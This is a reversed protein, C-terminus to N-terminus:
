HLALDLIGAVLSQFGANYDCAVENQIYDSRKDIFEGNQDPGGVLAGYLIQPSPGVRYQNSDNCVAPLDDCSSSRHHPQTPFSDGFGIVYSRNIENEGFMYHLQSRAYDRYSTVLAPSDAIGTQAAMLAIFGSNASYRLTGWVDRWALGKPTRPVDGGPMYSQLFSAVLDRYITKGTAEFLLVQCGVTKDDWSFAWPKKNQSQPFIAEAQNLYEPKGRSKICCPPPIASNTTMDVQSNYFNRADPIADSYKGRYTNAFDYLSEAASLLENAYTANGERKFVFSGIALAAATEAAVDSGPSSRTVKYAPRQMTMEEPRGWFSHDVGGIGVQAYYEQSSARWCKLFYDLPWKISDLVHGLQDSVVYADRWEALGWALITTSAAMPFSFKVHDGADYWGGTLDLGVDNTVQLPIVNRYPIRNNAPLVGSRQAEYFLISYELVKAYDYKTNLDPTTSTPGNGSETTSSSQETTLVSSPSKTTSVTSSSSTSVSSQTSTPISSTTFSTVPPTAMTQGLTDLSCTGSPFQLSSYEVVFVFSLTPPHEEAFNGVRYLRGNVDKYNIAGIWIWLDTSPANLNIDINFKKLSSSVPFACSLKTYNKGNTVWNEPLRTMQVTPSTVVATTSSQQQTTSTKITTSSLRTIAATTTPLQTSLGNTTMSSQQATTTPLQTSLGNTTMSSQQATTTEVITTQTSMEATTPITTSEQKTTPITTSIQTTASPPQTLTTDVTTSPSPTTSAETTTSPTTLPATTRPATTPFPINTNCTGKPPRKAKFTVQFQMKIIQPGYENFNEGYYWKGRKHQSTVNMIYWTISKTAKTLTINVHWDGKRQFEGINFTCEGQMTQEPVVGWVAKVEVPVSYAAIATMCTALILLEGPRAFVKIQNEAFM